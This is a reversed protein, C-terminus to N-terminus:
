VQIIKVEYAGAKEGRGIGKIVLFGDKTFIYDQFDPNFELYANDLCLITGEEIRIRGYEWTTLNLTVKLTEERVQNRRTYIVKALFSEDGNSHQDPRKLNNRFDAFSELTTAM